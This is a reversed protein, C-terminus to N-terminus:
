QHRCSEGDGPSAPDPALDLGAAKWHAVAETVDLAEVQGIAEDLNRFGLEAM